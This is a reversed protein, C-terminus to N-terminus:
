LRSTKGTIATSVPLGIGSTGQENQKQQQFDRNHQDACEMAQQQRPFVCYIGDSHGNKAKPGAGRSSSLPYLGACM